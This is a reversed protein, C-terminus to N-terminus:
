ISRNSNRASRTASTASTREGDMFNVIEYTVDDGNDVRAIAIRAADAGAKERSGNAAPRWRAKSPGTAFRFARM